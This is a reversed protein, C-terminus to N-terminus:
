YVGTFIVESIIEQTQKYKHLLAIYIDLIYRKQDQTTLLHFNHKEKMRLCRMCAKAFRLALDECRSDCLKKLRM